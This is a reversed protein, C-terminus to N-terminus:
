PRRLTNTASRPRNATRPSSILSPFSGLFRRILTDTAIPGWFGTRGRPPARGRGRGEVAGPHTMPTLHDSAHQAWAVHADGPTPEVAPTAPLSSVSGAWLGSRRAAPPWADPLRRVSRCRRRPVQHTPKHAVACPCKDVARKHQNTTNCLTAAQVARVAGM